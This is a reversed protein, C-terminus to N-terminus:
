CKEEILGHKFFYFIYKPDGGACDPEENEMVPIMGDYDMNSGVYFCLNDFKGQLHKVAKAANSTFTTVYEPDIEGDAVKEDLKEKVRKVYGKMYTMFEKKSGFQTEQLQHRDCLDIVKVPGDTTCQDDDTAEASANFGFKSDDVGVDKNCLKSEIRYLCDFLLETKYVDSFMEDGSILDKYILM